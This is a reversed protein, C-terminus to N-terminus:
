MYVDCLSLFFQTRGACISLMIPTFANSSGQLSLYAMDDHDSLLGSRSPSRARITIPPHISNSNSNQYLQFPVSKVKRLRQFPVSKKKHLREDVAVSSPFLLSQSEEGEAHQGRLTSLSVSSQSRILKTSLGYM